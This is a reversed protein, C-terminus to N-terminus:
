WSVLPYSVFTNRSSSLTIYQFYPKGSEEKGAGENEVEEEDNNSM